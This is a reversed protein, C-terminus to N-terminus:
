VTLGILHFVQTVVGYKKSLCHGNFSSHVWPSSTDNNLQNIIEQEEDADLFNPILFLGPLRENNYEFIEQSPPLLFMGEKEASEAQAKHQQRQQQQEKQEQRRSCAVFHIDMSSAMMRSFCLPCEVLVKSSVEKKLLPNSAGSSSSSCAKKPAFFSASAPKKNQKAQNITM